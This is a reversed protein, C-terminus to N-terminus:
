VDEGEFKKITTVSLNPSRPYFLLERINLGANVACTWWAHVHLCVVRRPFHLHVWLQLLRCSKTLDYSSSIFTFFREKAGALLRKINIEPCGKMWCKRSCRWAYMKEAWMWKLRPWSAEFLYSLQLGMGSWSLQSCCRMLISLALSRVQQVMTELVHLPKGAAIKALLRGHPRCADKRERKDPVSHLRKLVQLVCSPCSHSCCGLSTLATGLISFNHAHHQPYARANMLHAASHGLTNLGAEKGKNNHVHLGNYTTLSARM